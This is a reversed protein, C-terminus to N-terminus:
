RGAMGAEYDDNYAHQLILLSAVPAAIGVRSRRTEYFSSNFNNFTALLRGAAPWADIDNGAYQFVASLEAFVSISNNLSNVPPTGAAMCGPLCVSM